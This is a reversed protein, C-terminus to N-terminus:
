LLSHYLELLKKAAVKWQFDARRRRIHVIAHPRYTESELMLKMKTSLDIVNEADFTYDDNGLIEAMASNASVIVPCDCAMAETVQLGFGEIFSPYVFCIAHRYLLRADEDSIFGLLHVQRELNAAQILSRIHNRDNAAGGAIVLHLDKHLINQFADLLSPINKRAELGGIYFFFKEQLPFGCVFEESEELKEPPHYFFDEAGQYVVLVRRAPIRFCSQLDAKAVNSITVIKSARARAIWFLLRSKWDLKNAFQFDIADHLTLVTPVPCFWPVGFHIPCHYLHVRDKKLQRPLWFQEWLFYSIYSTEVINAGVLKQKYVEAIPKDSYLTVQQKEALLSSALNVTYRAWGRINEDTLARANIGIHM